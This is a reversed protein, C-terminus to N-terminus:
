SNTFYGTRETITISIPIKHPKIVTFPVSTSNSLGVSNVVTLKITYSGTINFYTAFQNGYGKFTLGSPGTILWAESSISVNKGATSNSTFVWVTQYPIQPPISEIKASPYNGSFVASLTQNLGSVTLNQETDTTIFLSTSSSVSYKYSGNFLEFSMNQTTSNQILTYNTITSNSLYNAYIVRASPDTGHYIKVQWTVNKELNWHTLWSIGQNLNSDFSIKYAIPMFTVNMTPDNSINLAFSAMNCFDYKALYSNLKLGPGSISINEIMYGNPVSISFPITGPLVSTSFSSNFTNNLVH